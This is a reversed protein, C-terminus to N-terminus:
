LWVRLLMRKRWRKKNVMECIKVVVQQAAVESEGLMLAVRAGWKDARTFQKKVNGGGYNTM